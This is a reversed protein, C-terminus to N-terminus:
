PPCATGGGFGFYFRIDSLKYRQCLCGEFASKPPCYMLPLRKLKDPIQIPVENAKAKKARQRNAAAFGAYARVVVVVVISQVLGTVTPVAEFQTIDTVGLAAVPVTSVKM